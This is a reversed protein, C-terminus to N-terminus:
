IQMEKRKNFKVDKAGQTNKANKVGKKCMPVRKVRQM